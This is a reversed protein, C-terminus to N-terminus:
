EARTRRMGRGMNDYCTATIVSLDVVTNDFPVDNTYQFAETRPAESLNPNVNWHAVWNDILAPTPDVLIASLSRYELTKFGNEHLIGAFIQCWKHDHTDDEMDLAIYRHRYQAWGLDVAKKWAERAHEEPADEHFGVWIPLMRHEGNNSADNWEDVTWVHPTNGGIYGAVGTTNPFPKSPPRSADFMRRLSM